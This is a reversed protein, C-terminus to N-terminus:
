IIEERAEEEELLPAEENKRIDLELLLMSSQFRIYYCYEAWGLLLVGILYLVHMLANHNFTGANPLPCDKFCNEYGEFGCKKKLSIQLVLSTIIIIGALPKMSASLLLMSNSPRDQEIQSSYESIDTVHQITTQQQRRASSSFFLIFVKRSSVFIMFLLTALQYYGVFTYKNWVTGSITIAVSLCIFFQHIRHCSTIQILSSTFLFTTAVSASACAAMKLFNHSKMSTEKEHIFAHNSGGFGFAMASSVFFGVMLLLNTKNQHSLTNNSQGAATASSSLNNYTKNNGILAAISLCAVAIIFDTAYTWTTDDTDLNEDYLDPPCGSNIYEKDYLERM